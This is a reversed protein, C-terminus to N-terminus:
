RCGGEIVWIRDHRIYVLNNLDCRRWTDFGLHAWESVISPSSKPSAQSAAAQAPPRSAAVVLVVLVVALVFPAALVIALRESRMVEARGRM